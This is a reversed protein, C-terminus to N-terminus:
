KILENLINWHRKTQKKIKNNVMRNSAKYAYTLFNGYNYSDSNEYKKESDNWVRGRTRRAGKYSFKKFIRRKFIQGRNKNQIKNAHYISRRIYKKM